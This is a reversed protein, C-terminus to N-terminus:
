LWDSKRSLDPAEQQNNITVTEIEAGRAVAAPQEIPMIAREEISAQEDREDPEHLARDIRAREEVRETEVEREWTRKFDDSARRFDNVSKGLTKALEPLKRPGFVMLAVVLILLLEGTGISELFLLM